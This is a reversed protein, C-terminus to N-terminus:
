RQLRSASGNGVIWGGVCHPCVPTQNLRSEAISRVEADDGGARLAELFDARQGMTLKAMADLLLKLEAAKLAGSWSGEL